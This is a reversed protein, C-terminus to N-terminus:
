AERFTGSVVWPPEKPDYPEMGDVANSELIKENVDIGLGPKGSLTFYGKELKYGSRVLNKKWDPWFAEFSEQILFNNLTTDV